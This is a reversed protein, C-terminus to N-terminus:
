FLTNSKCGSQFLNNGLHHFQYVRWKSPTTSTRAHLNSEQGPCLLELFGSFCNARIASNTSASTEPVLERLPTCTRNKNRASCTCLNICFCNGNMWRFKKKYKGWFFPLLFLKEAIYILASFASLIYEM